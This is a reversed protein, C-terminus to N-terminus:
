GFDIGVSLKGEGSKNPYSMTSSNTTGGAADQTLPRNNFTQPIQGQQQPSLIPQPQANLNFQAQAQAQPHYPQPLSQSHARTPSSPVPIPLSPSSPDSSPSPLNHPPPSSSATSGHSPYSNSNSLPPSTANNPYIPSPRPLHSLNPNTLQYSNSYPLRAGDPLPSMRESVTPLSNLSNSTAVNSTSPSFRNTSYTSVSHQLTSHSPPPSTSQRGWQELINFPEINNTNLEVTTPPTSRTKANNNNNNNSFVKGIKKM